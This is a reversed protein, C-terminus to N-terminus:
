DERKVRDDEVESMRCNAVAVDDVGFDDDEGGEAETGKKGCASRVHPLCWDLRSSLCSAISSARMADYKNELFWLQM